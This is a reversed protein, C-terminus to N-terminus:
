NISAYKGKTAPRYNSAMYEDVWQKDIRFLRGIRASRIEGKRLLIYLSRLPIKLNAAVEKPTLLNM